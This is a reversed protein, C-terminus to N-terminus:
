RGHKRMGVFRGIAQFKRLIGKSGGGGLGVRRMSVGIPGEQLKPPPPKANAHVDALHRFAKLWRAAIAREHTRDGSTKAEGAAGSAGVELNLTRTDTRLCIYAHERSPRVTSQRGFDGSGSTISLLSSVPISGREHSEGVKRWKIYLFDSSVWVHRPHPRGRRGHKLFVAGRNLISDFTGDRTTSPELLSKASVHVAASSSKRMPDVGISVYEPGDDDGNVSHEEGPVEDSSIPADKIVIRAAVDKELRGQEDEVANRGSHEDDLQDQLSQAREELQRQAGGNIGGGDVGPHEPDFFESSSASQLKSSMRRSSGREVAFRKLIDFCASVESASGAVLTASPDSSELFEVVREECKELQLPKLERRSPSSFTTSAYGEEDGDESSAFQLHRRMDVAGGDLGQWQELQEELLQARERLKVSEKRLSENELKLRACLRSLDVEENVFVENTLRSCRQAFRCTSVSELLFDSEANLTAVFVTRCNGGLSDRLISTMVSNRYPIHMSKNRTKASTHLSLIVQELYHLSLNIYKGEATTRADGERKYVRESGALDVLHLKSTRVVDGDKKRGELTITFICHSRSSAQNMPTESTVRNVNGLFLLNLADEESKAEYVRLNRLHLEGLDDDLLQVKTWEELPKYRHERNLLDYVSENYIELYSVFCHFVETDSRRSIEGFIDAIARPIIGRDRYEEGGTITFTKGSGTQGYAFITGNFGQICGAVVPKAVQEYVEAQDKASDTAFAGSSDFVRNFAFKYSSSHRSEGLAGAALWELQQKSSTKSSHVRYHRSSLLEDKEDVGERRRSKSYQHRELSGIPSGGALPDVTDSRYGDRPPRLRAFTAIGWREPRLSSTSSRARVIAGTSSERPSSGGVGYKGNTLSSDGRM